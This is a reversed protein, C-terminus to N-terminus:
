VCSVSQVSSFEAYLNFLCPSLICGPRVGKRIQFWDAIGHRARVTAEQGAYLLDAQSLLCTMHGPIEMDKLIKWMKSHDVCDFAKAYDILCFYISKQFKRAKIIIWRMNAIQDRSGRGKRFGAQADPLERNMQQVLDSLPKTVLDHGVRLVGLVTARWAGRDMLAEGPLFVPTPHWKRIYIYYREAMLFLSFKGNAVVPM